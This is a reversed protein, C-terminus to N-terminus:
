GLLRNLVPAIRDALDTNPDLDGGGLPADVVNGQRDLIVIAPIQDVGLQRSVAGNPDRLVPVRLNNRRAFARLQDDSAFNRSGQSESETSVWYVEVRGQYREAIKQTGEAQARSLPLWSAGFALVVVDGRLIESSIRGGDVTRLSFQAVRQQQQTTRRTRSAYSTVSAMQAFLALAAFAIVMFRIKPAFM